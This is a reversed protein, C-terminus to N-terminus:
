ELVRIAAGDAILKIDGLLDTRMIITERLADLTAEHPHGYPNDKGCSIVAMDPSVSDIFEEGSSTKSGHHAVKLVSSDLEVGEKLLAREASQYIDGTFLFSTEGFVLRSVVSTNNTNSAEGGEL